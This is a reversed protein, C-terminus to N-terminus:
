VWARALAKKKNRLIILSVTNIDRYIYIEEKEKVNEGGCILIFLVLTPRSSRGWSGESELTTVKIGGVVGSYLLVLMLANSVTEVRVTFEPRDIYIYVQYTNYLIYYTLVLMLANPATGVRVTRKRRDIYIGPIYEITYLIDVSVDLRKFGKRSM